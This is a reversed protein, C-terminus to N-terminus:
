RNRLVALVILAHAIVTVILATSLSFTHIFGNQGMVYLTYIGTPYNLCVSVVLGPNYKRKILGMLIHLSANFLGFIPLLLGFEPSVNQALIAALPFLIWIALINIWFVAPVTLPSDPRTSHFVERN